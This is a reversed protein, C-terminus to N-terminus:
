NKIRKLLIRKFNIQILRKTPKMWILRYNIIEKKMLSVELHSTSEESDVGIIKRISDNGKKLYILPLEFWATPFQTMSIFVQDSNMGQYTDSKSVKRLLESSFTNIPYMRGNNDQIILRGFKEAQQEPVKYKLISDLYNMKTNHNM